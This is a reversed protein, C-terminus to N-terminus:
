CTREYLVIGHQLIDKIFFDGAQLRKKVEGPTRVIIDMPFSHQIMSSIEVSLDWSSQDSEIIFFLDVDSFSTSTGKAYSGFLIIKDPNYKKIVKDIKKRIDNLTITKPVVPSEIKKM